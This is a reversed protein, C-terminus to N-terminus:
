STVRGPVHWFEQTNSTRTEDPVRVHGTDPRFESM